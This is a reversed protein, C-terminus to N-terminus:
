REDREEAEIRAAILALRRRRRELEPFRPSRAPQLVGGRLQSRLEAVERVSVIRGGGRRQPQEDLWAFFASREDPM